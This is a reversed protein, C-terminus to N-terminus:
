PRLRKPKFGKIRLANSVVSVSSFAMAAGAVLPSLFGLAAVPIGIINYVFAWFMNQRINRITARSLAISDPVSRLDGRVLVINAAEIAVDTGSGIAFGVDAEALAPADNIGDGVMGAVLGREKLRRVKEAKEEPLVQAMVNDGSIGVERAIAYATPYNDGTLMWVQLGMNQLMAVAEKSTEKITDAVALAAAAQGELAMIMVTKGQSELEPIVALIDAPLPIGKENMLRQTGVLVLRGGVEAEIGRGPIAKFNKVEGAEALNEGAKRIIAQALPHESGSEAAAAMQLLLEERGSHYGAAVVDTLVPEGHTITGTKDLVVVNLSHARELYEGGKILIGYEAGKGTGVMISTPTALGLACPCAIVMVATFNLLARTINGQDAVFYWGAFTIVAIAIVVPVFYGSVVDALRQIPAKSSQAEEVIRIIRALATDRGVRTAEFKFTGLKNITAGVVQDGVNKDVPLSEGTLMSEDVTSHGDRIVGDVPVKEGPRVVVVDGVLVEEVPLDVEQGGRIVKATRAQLGALKKLAESTKGRARAELMKGLLIMTLLVASSEFYVGEPLGLADGRFTVVTSYLYAATTGMAVLVSMNASRNKLTIYSDRYFHYGAVVQVPTAFIFQFLPSHLWLPFVHHLPGFIALMGLMLPASFVASFVFLFVQRRTEREHEDKEQGARAEGTIRAQFGLLIVTNILDPARVELPNYEISATGLALNVVANIVGPTALLKKEIRTSCAACNMGSISLELKETFIDYGMRKIKGTLNQPEAM